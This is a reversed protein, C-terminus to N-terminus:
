SLNAHFKLERNFSYRQFIISIKAESSESRTNIMNIFTLIGVIAPMKVNILM